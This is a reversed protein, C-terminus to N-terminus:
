DREEGEEEEGEPLEDDPDPAEDEILTGSFGPSQPPAVGFMKQLASRLREELMAADGEEEKPPGKMEKFMGVVDIKGLLELARIRASAQSGDDLSELMLREYVHRRVRAADIEHRDRKANILAKVRAKVHPVDILKSASSFVTAPKMGETSYVRRYAESYSVNDAVLRSFEEQKATLGHENLRTIGRAESGESGDDLGKRSISDTTNRTLRGVQSGAM